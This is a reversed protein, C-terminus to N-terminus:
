FILTYTMTVVFKMLDVWGGTPSRFDHIFIIGKKYWEKMFISKNEIRIAKNNWMISESIESYVIEKTFELLKRYFRPIWNLHKSDFNCRILFYNWGDTGISLSSIM